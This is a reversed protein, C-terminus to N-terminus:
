NRLTKGTKLTYAIRELTRPEGCLTLFAERELDLVQQETLVTRHAVQGGTMVRAIARGITADHESIRGARLALHIGLALTAFGDPGGVPISTRPAIPAYGADALDLADRKADALVRARNMTIGDRDVLYGLQRAHPASTSVKGFGITEFSAQIAPFPDAGASRDVARMLMETTGGGCAGISVALLVSGVLLVPKRRVVAGMRAGAAGSLFLTLEREM